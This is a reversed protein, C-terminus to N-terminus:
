SVQSSIHKTCFFINVTHTHSTIQNNYAFYRLLYFTKLPNKNNFYMLCLRAITTFFSPSAQEDDDAYRRGVRKVNNFYIMKHTHTQNHAHIPYSSFIYSFFIFIKNQIHLEIYKWYMHHASVIVAARIIVKVTYTLKRLDDIFFLILFRYVQNHTKIKKHKM